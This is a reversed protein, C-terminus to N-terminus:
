MYGKVRYEWTGILVYIVLIEFVINFHFGRRMEAAATPPTFAAPNMYVAAVCECLTVSAHPVPAKTAEAAAVHMPVNSIEESGSTSLHFRTNFKELPILSMIINIAIWLVPPAITFPTVPLSSYLDPLVFPPFGQPGSTELKAKRSGM